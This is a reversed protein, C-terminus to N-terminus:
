IRMPGIYAQGYALGAIFLVRNISNQTLGGHFWNFWLHKIGLERFGPVYGAPQAVAPLSRYVLGKAEYALRGDIWV